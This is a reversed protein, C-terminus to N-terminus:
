GREWSGREVELYLSPEPFQTGKGQAHSSHSSTRSDRVEAKPGPWLDRNKTSVLLHAAEPSSFPKQATRSLAFLILSNVFHSAANSDKLYVLVIGTKLGHLVLYSDTFYPILLQQDVYGYLVSWAKCFGWTRHLYVRFFALYLWKFIDFNVLFHIAMGVSHRVAGPHCMEKNIKVNEFPQTETLVLRILVLSPFKTFRPTSKRVIHILLTALGM